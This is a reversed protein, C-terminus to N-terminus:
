PGHPSAYAEREPCPASSARIGGDSRYKGAISSGSVRGSAPNRMHPVADPVLPPLSKRAAGGGPLFALGGPPLHGGAVGSLPVGGYSMVSLASVRTAALGATVSQSSSSIRVSNSATASMNGSPATVMEVSLVALLFRSSAVLRIAPASQVVMAWTLSIIRGRSDSGVADRLRRLAEGM